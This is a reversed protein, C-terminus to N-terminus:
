HKREQVKGKNAISNLSKIRFLKHKHIFQKRQITPKRKMNIKREKNLEEGKKM